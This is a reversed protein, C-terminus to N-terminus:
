TASTTSTSDPETKSGTGLVRVDDDPYRRVGRRRIARPDDIVCLSPILLVTVVILLIADM